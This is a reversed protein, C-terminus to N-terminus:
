GIRGDSHTFPGDEAHKEERWAHIKDIFFEFSGGSCLFKGDIQVSENKDYVVLYPKNKLRYYQIIYGYAKNSFFNKIPYDVSPVVMDFLFTVTYVFGFQM